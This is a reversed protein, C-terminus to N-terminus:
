KFDRPMLKDTTVSKLPIQLRMGISLAAGPQLGNAAAVALSLAESGTYWKSIRALTEDEALVTHIVDGNEAREAFGQAMRLAQQDSNLGRLEEVKSKAHDEAKAPTKAKVRKVPTPAPTPLVPVLVTRVETAAEKAEFRFRRERGAIIFLPEGNFSSELRALEKYDRREISYPGRIVWERFRGGNETQLDALEAAYVEKDRPYFMLLHPPHGQKETLEIAMPAGRGSLFNFLQRSRQAEEAIFLNSGLYANTTSLPLLGQNVM